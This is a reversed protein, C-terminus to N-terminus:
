SAFKFDYTELCFFVNLLRVSSSRSVRPVPSIRIPDGYPLLGPSESHSSGLQVQNRVGDGDVFEEYLLLSHISLAAREDGTIMHVRREMPLHHFTQGTLRALLTRHLTSHFRTEWWFEVVGPAVIAINQRKPTVFDLSRLDALLMNVASNVKARVCLRAKDSEEIYTVQVTLVISEFDGM